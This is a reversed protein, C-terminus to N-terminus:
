VILKNVSSIIYKNSSQTNGPNSPVKLSYNESLNEQLILSVRKQFKPRSMSKPVKCRYM